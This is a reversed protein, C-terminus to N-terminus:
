HGCSFVLLAGLTALMSTAMKRTHSILGRSSLPARDPLLPPIESWDSATVDGISQLPLSDATGITEAVLLLPPGHFHFSCNILVHRPCTGGANLTRM